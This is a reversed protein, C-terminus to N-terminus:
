SVLTDNQRLNVWYGQGSQLYGSTTPLKVLGGNEVTWISNVNPMISKLAETVPTSMKNHLSVLNWGQTLKFVPPIQPQGPLNVGRSGVVQFNGGKSSYAYYGKGAQLFELNSPVDPNANFVKWGTEGYEYIKLTSDNLGVTMKTLNGNNPILPVSILNWGAGYVVPYIEVGEKLDSPYKGLLSRILPTVSQTTTYVQRPVMLKIMKNGSIWSYEDLPVSPCALSSGSVTGSEQGIIQGDVIFRQVWIPSDVTLVDTYEEYSVTVLKNGCYNNELHPVWDLGKYSDNYVYTADYHMKRGKDYRHLSLTLLTLDNLNMLPNIMTTNDFVEMTRNTQMELTGNYSIGFWATYNSSAGYPVDAIFLKYCISANYDECYNRINTLNVWLLNSGNVLAITVNTLNLRDIMSYVAISASVNKNGTLTYSPFIYENLYKESRCIQNSAPFLYYPNCIQGSKCPCSCETKLYVSAGDLICRTAPTVASCQGLPTGDSCTIPVCTGNYACQTGTGCGCVGCANVLNSSANCLLPKTLSCKGLSTGDACGYTDVLNIATLKASTDLTGGILELAVTCPYQGKCTNNVKSVADTVPPVTYKAVAYPAGIIANVNPRITIQGSCSCWPQITVVGMTKPTTATSTAGSCTCSLPGYDTAVTVVNESISQNLLAVGSTKVTYDQTTSKFFVTVNDFQPTTTSNYSYQIVIPTGATVNYTSPVNVCELGDLCKANADCREGLSKNGLRCAGSECGLDCKVIENTPGEAGCFTEFLFSGNPTSKFVTYDSCDSNACCVDEGVVSQAYVMGKSNYSKGNDTDACDPGKRTQFYLTGNGEAINLSPLIVLNEYIDTASSTTVLLKGFIPYEKTENPSLNIMITDNLGGTVQAGQYWTGNFALYRNWSLDGENAIVASIQLEENSSILSPNTSNASLVDSKPIIKRVVYRVEPYKRGSGLCAGMVCKDCTYPEFLIQKESGCVTESVFCSGGTCNAVTQMKGDSGNVVCTDPYAVSSGSSTVIGAKLYDRGNDSDSCIGPQTPAYSCVMPKALNSADSTFDASIPVVGTNGDVYGPVSYFISALSKSANDMIGIVLAGGTSTVSFQGSKPEKEFSLYSFQRNSPISGKLLLPTGNNMTKNGSIDYGLIVFGTPSNMTSVTLVILALSSVVLLVSLVSTLKERM